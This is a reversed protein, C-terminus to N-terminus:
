EASNSLLLSCYDEDKLSRGIIMVKSKKVNFDLCFKRCYNLCIDLLKQLGGRSPSLLVIDDAFFLRAICIQIVQCGFGGDKLWKILDHMYLSFFDPSLIGGLKTGSPIDFFNSM